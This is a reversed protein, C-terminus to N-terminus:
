KPTEIVNHLRIIHPHKLRLLIRIERLVKDQMGLEVIREKKLTKVAVRDGTTRHEMLFVRGFSGAGLQMRAVYAPLVEEVAKLLPQRSSKEGTKAHGHGHSPTRQAGPDM